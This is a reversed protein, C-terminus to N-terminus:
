KKTAKRKGGPGLEVATASGEFTPKFKVRRKLDGSSLTSWNVRELTWHWGIDTPSFLFEVDGALIDSVLTKLDERDGLVAEGSSQSPKLLVSLTVPEEEGTKTVKKKDEVTEQVQAVEAFLSKTMDQYSEADWEYDVGDHSAMAFRGTEILATTVLAVDTPKLDPYLKRILDFTLEPKTLNITVM